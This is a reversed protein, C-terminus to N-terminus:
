ELHQLSRASNSTLSVAEVRELGKAKNAGWQEAVMQGEALNAGIYFFSETLNAGLYM